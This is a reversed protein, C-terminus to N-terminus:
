VSYFFLLINKYLICCWHFATFSYSFFCCLSFTFRFYSLANRSLSKKKPLPREKTMWEQGPQTQRASLREQMTGSPHPRPTPLSTPQSHRAQKFLSILIVAEALIVRANNGIAQKGDLVINWILLLMNKTFVNRLCFRFGFSSGPRSCLSSITLQPVQPDTGPILMSLVADSEFWWAGAIQSTPALTVGNHMLM